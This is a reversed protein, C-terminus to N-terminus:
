YMTILSIPNKNYKWMAKKNFLVNFIACVQSFYNLDLGSSASLSEIKAPKFVIIGLISRTNVPRSKM